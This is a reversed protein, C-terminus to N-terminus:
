KHFEESSNIRNIEKFSNTSLWARPLPPRSLILAPLAALLGPASAACHGLRPESRRFPLFTVPFLSTSFVSPLPGESCQQRQRRGGSGWGEEQGEERQMQASPLKTPLGVMVRVFSVFSFAWLIMIQM